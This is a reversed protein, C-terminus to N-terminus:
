SQNFTSTTMGLPVLIEERMFDQFSKGSVVALAYGALDIGQNCYEFREGAPNKLWSGTTSKVVEEFTRTHYATDFPNGLPSWTGLGSHHALLHRITIREIESAGFRSNVSFWPLYKKLPADLDVLNKAVAKLAGLATFSKSISGVHFLTDGTVKVKLSRNTYGFGESWVINDGDVLAISAGTIDRGAMAIPLTQKIKEIALSYDTPSSNKPPVLASSNKLVSVEALM